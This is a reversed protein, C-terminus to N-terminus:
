FDEDLLQTEGPLVAGYQRGYISEPDIIGPQQEESEEDETGSERDGSEDCIEKWIKPMERMWYPDLLTDEEIKPNSRLIKRMESHQAVQASLIAKMLKRKNADWASVDIVCERGLRAADWPDCTTFPTRDQKAAKHAQFANQASPYTLGKFLVSRTSNVCIGLQRSTPAGISEDRRRKVGSRCAVRAHRVVEEMAAIADVGCSSDLKDLALKLSLM